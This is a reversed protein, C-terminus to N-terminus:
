PNPIRWINIHLCWKQLIWVFTICFIASFVWKSIIQKGSGGNTKSINRKYRDMEANCSLSTSLGKEVLCLIKITMKLVLFCSAYGSSCDLMFSFLINKQFPGGPLWILTLQSLIMKTEYFFIVSICLFSYFLVYIFTALLQSCNKYKILCLLLM